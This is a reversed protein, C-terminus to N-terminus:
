NEIKKMPEDFYEENTEYVQFMPHISLDASRVREELFCADNQAGGGGDCLALHTGLEEPSQFGFQNCM